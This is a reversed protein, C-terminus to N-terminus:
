GLLPLLIANLITCVGSVRPALLRLGGLWSLRRWDHPFSANQHSAIPILSYHDHATQVHIVVTFNLLVLDYVYVNRPSRLIAATSSNLFGNIMALHRDTRVHFRTFCVLPLGLSLRLKEQTVQACAAMFRTKTGRHM